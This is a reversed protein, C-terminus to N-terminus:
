LLVTFCAFASTPEVHPRCVHDHHRSERRHVDLARDSVEQFAAFEGASEFSRKPVSSSMLRQSLLRYGSSTLPYRRVSGVPQTQARAHRLRKAYRAERPHWLLLSLAITPGASNPLPREHRGALLFLQRRLETRGRKSQRTRGRYSGSSREVLNM